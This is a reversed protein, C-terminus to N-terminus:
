HLAGDTAGGVWDAPFRDDPWTPLQTGLYDNFLVPLLNVPSVDEPLETRSRVALLNAFHDNSVTGRGIEVQSAAGHDSMVVVVAQDVDPVESLLEDIAKLTRDNLFAIQDRYAQRADEPIPNQDFAGEAPPAGLLEGRADLVVPPHPSPVHILAFTPGTRSSTVQEFYDFGTLIRSRHQEALADPAVADIVRHVTTFRLLHREFENLSGDDLFVDAARLTVHEFGPSTAIIRYGHEHLLEFAPNDNLTARLLPYPDADGQRLPELAPIEHLPRMHLMSTLTGQTFTYNSESEEVVDFGRVSLDSLFETGDGGFLRALSDARPYGDLLLIYFDPARPDGEANGMIDGGGQAIDAIAASVSGRIIGGAVVVVALIIAIANMSGTFGTWSLRQRRIRAILALATPVAAALILAAAANALGRSTLLVLVLLTAAGSIHRQRTLSLLGFFLGIAVLAAVLLSRTTALLSVGSEVWLNLVYALPIVVPYWPVTEAPRETGRM